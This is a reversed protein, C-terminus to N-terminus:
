DVRTAAKLNLLPKLPPTQHEKRDDIDPKPESADAKKKGTTAM